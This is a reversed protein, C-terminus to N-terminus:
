IRLSAALGKQAGDCSGGVLFHSSILACIARVRVKKAKEMGSLGNSLRKASRLDCDLVHV